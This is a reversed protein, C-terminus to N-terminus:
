ATHLPLSGINGSKSSDLRQVETSRRSVSILTTTFQERTSELCSVRTELDRFQIEYKVNMCITSDYWM